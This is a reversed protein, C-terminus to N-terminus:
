LFGIIEQLQLCYKRLDLWEFSFFFLSVYIDSCNEDVSFDDADVGIM